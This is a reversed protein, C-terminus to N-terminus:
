LMAATRRLYKAWNTKDSKGIKEARIENGRLRRRQFIFSTPNKKNVITDRVSLVIQTM